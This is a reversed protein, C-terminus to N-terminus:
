RISIFFFLYLLYSVYRKILDDLKISSQSYLDLSSFTDSGHIGSITVMLGISGHSHELNKWIYHTQDKELDKLCVTAKGVIEDKGHSVRNYVSLELIEYHVSSSHFDFQENWVPNVTKSVVKSFTKIKSILLM